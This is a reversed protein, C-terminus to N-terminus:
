NIRIQNSFRIIWKNQYYFLYIIRFSKNLPIEFCTKTNEGQINMIYKDSGDMKYILKGTYEDPNSNNTIVSRDFINNKNIDLKVKDNFNNEFYILFYNKDKEKKSLLNKKSKDYQIEYNNSCISKQISNKHSKCSFLLCILFFIYVKM